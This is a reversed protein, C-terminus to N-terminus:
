LRPPPPPPPPPPTPDGPPPPNSNNLKRAVRVKLRYNKKPSDPKIWEFDSIEWNGGSPLKKLYQKYYSEVTSKKDVLKKSGIKEDPPIAYSFWIKGPRKAKTTKKASM